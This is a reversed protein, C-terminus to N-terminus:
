WRKPGAREAIVPVFDAEEALHGVPVSKEVEGVLIPRWIDRLAMPVLFLWVVAAFLFAVSVFVAFVIPFLVVVTAIVRGAPGYTIMSRRWRPTAPWNGM